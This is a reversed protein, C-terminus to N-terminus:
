ASARRPAPPVTAATTASAPRCPAAAWLPRAARRPQASRRSRAASRPRRPPLPIPLPREPPPAQRPPPLPLRLSCMPRRLPPAQRPPLLPLPPPRLSRRPLLPRRPPPPPHHAYTQWPLRARSFFTAAGDNLRSAALRLDFTSPLQTPLCCCSRDNESTLRSEGARCWRLCTPTPHTTADMGAPRRSLRVAGRAQMLPRSSTRKQQWTRTLAVSLSKRLIGARQVM